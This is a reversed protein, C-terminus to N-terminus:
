KDYNVLKGPRRNKKLAEYQAYYHNSASFYVDLISDYFDELNEIMSPINNDDVLVVEETLGKDVLMTVFTILEQSVTFQSGKYFYLLDEQYKEKILRKQNNLTVMFNSFNLAKELREDM